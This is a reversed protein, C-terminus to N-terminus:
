LKKHQANVITIKGIDAVMGKWIFIGSQSNLGVTKDGLFDFFLVSLTYEGAPLAPVVLNYNEKIVAGEKWSSTPKIGYAPAHYVSYRSVGQKDIFFLKMGYNKDMAKAARWYFTATALQRATAVAPLAPLAMELSGDITVSKKGSFDTEDGTEFLKFKSPYENRFLVTDGAAMVIGFKNDSFFREMKQHTAEKEPESILGVLYLDNFAVLVYEIGPIHRYDTYHTPWYVEHFAYARSRSSLQPLFGFSAMVTADSPVAKLIRRNWYVPPNIRYAFIKRYERLCDQSSVIAAAGMCIGIMLSRYPISKTAKILQKVAFIAAISVLPLLTVAYNRIITQETKQSSLLHQLFIPAGLLLIDPRLLSVFALPSFLQLLFDIQRQGLLHNVAAGAGQQLAPYHVWYGHAAGARFFPIIHFVALYFWLGGSLLSFWYWEKERRQLFAYVGFMAVVLALNEKVLLLLLAFLVFRRFDKKLYFYFLCPILFVALNEWDFDYIFAYFLIPSLFYLLIFFIGWRRGLTERAILFIPLAALCFVLAKLYVFFLARPFLAYLPLFLFAIFNAHNGLFNRNFLSSYLEGRLLNWQAQNFFALDWDGYAFVSYGLSLIYVWLLFFGAIIRRATLVSKDKM